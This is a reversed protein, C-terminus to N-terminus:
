RRRNNQINEILLELNRVNFPKTMYAEAGCRYGETFDKEDTKATLMIVPIHSTTVDHKIHSTFELGNMKPMMIDTVIIDPLRKSLLQCAEEGNYARIVEYRDKLVDYLYGNMEANDEVLMVTERSLENKETVLKDPILRLTDQMRRNYKQIEEDTISEALKEDENYANESVDLTIIFEAGNDVESEVKITGKHMQVLSRTLALGLGFGERHDQKEVQFYSEFIKEQMDKPIGRGNDKVSIVAFDKNGESRIGASLRVSGGNQAPTYKFANSLLNYMIRELKSPSFWVEKGEDKLDLIFRICKEKAIIEFM